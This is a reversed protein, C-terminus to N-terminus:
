PAAVAVPTLKGVETGDGLQGNSGDGWCWGKGSKAVGCSFAFGPSISLWTIGGSVQVPSFHNTTSGNGLEGATGNGWCFGVGALTVGCGDLFSLALNSWKRTGGLAVPTLTTRGAGRGDGTATSSGWCVGRDDMLIGCSTVGGAEIDRFAFGKAAQVPTKSTATTGDGLEGHHNFGWCWALNATTIACAHQNAVGLDLWDQTGAVKVPSRSTGLVGNGLYGGGWCFADRARTIACVMNGTGARVLRYFRGGAVERPTSSFGLSNGIGLQGVSNDGWCFVEDGTSLGCTVGNGATVQQFRLGGSVTVPRLACPRDSCQHPSNAPPIGLEGAQNAGWCWAKGDAAVGCVHETGASIQIFSLPSAAAAAASPPYSDPGTPQPADDRCGVGAVLLLAAVPLMPLKM